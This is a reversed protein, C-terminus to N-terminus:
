EITKKFTNEQKIWHKKLATEVLKRLYWMYIYFPNVEKMSIESLTIHNKGLNVDIVKTWLSFDDSQFVKKLM